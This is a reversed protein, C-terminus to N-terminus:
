QTLDAIQPGDQRQFSEKVTFTFPFFNPINGFGRESLQFM